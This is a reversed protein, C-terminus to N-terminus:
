AAKERPQEISPAMPASRLFEIAKAMPRQEHLNQSNTSANLIKGGGVDPREARSIFKQIDVKIPAKQNWWDWRQHGYRGPELRAAPNFGLGQLIEASPM